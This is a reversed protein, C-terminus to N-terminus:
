VSLVDEKKAYLEWNNNAYDFCERRSSTTTNRHHHWAGNWAHDYRNQAERQKIAHRFEEATPLTFFESVEWRMGKKCRNDEHGYAVVGGNVPCYIVCMNGVTTGKIKLRFDYKTYEEKVQNFSLM